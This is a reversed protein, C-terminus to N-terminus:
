EEKKENDSKPEAYDTDDIKVLVDDEFFLTVRSEILSESTRGRPYYRYIYDWRNTRFPDILVPTGLITAIEPRTMGLQIKELAPPRIVNGLTIEPRHADPLWSECASVVFISLLALILCRFKNRHNM